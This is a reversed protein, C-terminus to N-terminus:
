TRDDRADAARRHGGRGLTGAAADLDGPGLMEHVGPVRRAAARRRLALVHMGFADALLAVQSGITGVGILGLTRGRLLWPLRDGVFENQSWRRERQAALM